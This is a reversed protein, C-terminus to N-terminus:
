EHCGFAVHLQHRNNLGHTKRGRQSLHSFISNQSYIFSPSLSSKKKTKNQKQVHGLSSIVLFPKLTKPKPTVKARQNCCRAHVMAPQLWARWKSLMQVGEPNIIRSLSVKVHLHGVSISGSMRQGGTLRGVAGLRAGEVSLNNVIVHIYAHYGQSAAPSSLHFRM